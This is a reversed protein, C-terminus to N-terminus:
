RAARRCRWRVWSSMGTHPARGSPPVAAVPPARPPPARSMQVMMAVTKVEPTPKTRDFADTLITTIAKKAVEIDGDTGDAVLQRQASRKDPGVNEPLWRFMMEVYQKGSIPVELYPNIDDDFEQMRLLFSQATSNDPMRSKPADKLIVLSDWAEDQSHKVELKGKLSRIERMMAAGDLMEEYPSTMAHDKKLKNLLNKAFEALSDELLGAIKNRANRVREKWELDRSANKQQAQMNMLQIKPLIDKDVGFESLLPLDAYEASKEPSAAIFPLLGAKRFVTKSSEIWVELQKEDPNNSPFVPLATSSHTASDVTTGNMQINEANGDIQGAPILVFLVSALLYIITDNRPYWTSCTSGSPGTVASPM